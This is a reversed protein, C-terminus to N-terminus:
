LYDKYSLLKVREKGYKKRLLPLISKNGLIVVVQKNWEMINKFTSAFDKRAIKMINDQFLYLDEYKKGIHDFYLLQNLYSSNQEFRFPNSGALYSKAFMLEQKDFQNNGVSKLNAELVELLNVVTRNKTFTTIVSRGYDKQGGLFVSVGYTLGRKERIERMLRSNLGGGLFGGILTLIDDDEFEGKNLFRGVRIQAQKARPVPVLYIEPFDGFKKPEYVMARVFDGSESTWGCEKNIISKIDLVEPPGSIFIKKAVKTNFYKLKDLLARRNIRKLDAIKGGVPYAYPTGTLSRERFVRDILADHNSVLNKLGNRIRVKTKRLEAKPFNADAFLHCIKKMAPAIDKVMGSVSFSSREHTVYPGYSTGFYELNDSIQKQNYRRTGADLMSFMMQTTGRTSKGDSLAGDAFNVVLNYLPFREEKIWVVEVGDWDIKFVKDKLGGAAHGAGGTGALLMVVVVIYNVMKLKSLKSLKSLM